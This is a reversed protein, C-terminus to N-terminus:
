YGFSAPHAGNRRAVVSGSCGCRIREGGVRIGDLRISQRNNNDLLRNQSVKPEFGTHMLLFCGTGYTSKAMGPRFCAQGFMAAQQDGAIGAIPIERGFIELATHGVVDSSVVVQPLVSQPIQFLDLLEQSWEQRHIDFLMTRSANSIDTAHVRGDTLAGCFFATSRGLRWGGLRRMPVPMPCTTLFGRFSQRPSTATLSCGRELECILEEHGSARLEGCRGATRRDQWVIAPHVARGTERNWLLTTERQNTIGIAAIDNATADVVQMAQRAAALQTEWIEEPDHEVWGPQPYHQTIEKQSSACPRGGEDFLIARSSTTGRIWRM